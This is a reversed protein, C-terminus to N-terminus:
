EFLLGFRIFLLNAYVKLTQIYDLCRHPFQWIIIAAELCDYVRNEFFPSSSSLPLYAGILKVKAKNYNDVIM